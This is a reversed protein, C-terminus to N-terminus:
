RRCPRHRAHQQHPSRRLRLPGGADACHVPRRDSGSQPDVLVLHPEDCWSRKPRQMPMRRRSGSRTATTSSDAAARVVMEGETLGASIAIRRRGPVPRSRRMEVATTTGSSSSRRSATAGSSRRNPVSLMPAADTAISVRAFMGPRLGAAEPLAVYVTGLRSESDVAMAVARVEGAVTNGAADTM